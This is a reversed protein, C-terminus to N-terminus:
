ASVQQCALVCALQKMLALGPELKPATVQIVPSHFEVAGTENNVMPPKAKAILEREILRCDSLERDISKITAAHGDFTEQETEDKTRNEDTIKNQITELAAMEAARKEELGKMRDTNTMPM